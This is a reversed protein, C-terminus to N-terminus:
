ATPNGIVPFPMSASATVSGLRLHQRFFPRYEDQRHSVYLM